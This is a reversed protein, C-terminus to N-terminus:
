CLLLAIPDWRAHAVVFVLNKKELSSTHSAASVSSVSLCSASHARWFMLLDVNRAVHDAWSALGLTGSRAAPVEPAVTAM